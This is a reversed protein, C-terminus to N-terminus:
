KYKEKLYKIFKIEDLLQQRKFKLVELWEENSHGIMWPISLRNTFNTFKNKKGEKILEIWAEVDQLDAKPNISM